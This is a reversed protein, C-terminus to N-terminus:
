SYEFKVPLNSDQRYRFEKKFGKKLSYNPQQHQGRQLDVDSFSSIARTRRSFKRWWHLVLVVIQELSSFYRGPCQQGSIRGAIGPASCDSDPCRRTLRRRGNFNTVTRVSVYRYRGPVYGATREPTSRFPGVPPPGARTARRPRAPPSHSRPASPAVLVLDAFVSLDPDM